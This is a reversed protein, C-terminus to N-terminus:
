DPKKGELFTNITSIQTINNEDTGVAYSSYFKEVSALTTNHVQLNQRVYAPINEYENNPDAASFNFSLNRLKHLREEARAKQMEAEDLAAMEQVFASSLEHEDMVPVMPSSAEHFVIEFPEEAEKLEQSQQPNHTSRPDPASNAEIDLKEFLEISATHAEPLKVEPEQAPIHSEAAAENAYINTPRKLFSGLTNSAVTAIVAPKIDEKKQENVIEMDHSVVPETMVPLEKITLDLEFVMPGEEEVIVQEEVQYVPEQLVITEEVETTSEIVLTPIYEAQLEIKEAGPEEQQLEEMVVPATVEVLEIKVEELEQVPVLNVMEAKPQPNVDLTFMIKEDKPEQRTEPKQEGSPLKQDFGTAIITISINDGLSEDYGLGLIVDADPGAQTLLYEQITEVEDMTFETEGKQSNINILIWKAGKIDSDNLLPSNLAQQIAVQARDEGQARASGLIAVGGNRMVTCVDAFDVNIQGTTNIVDTICKAATALVNDATSLAASMTLNGFQHRLKDNSIVLLTDVQSKMQQIGSDAHLARKKGEYSFPTTIIGVTLIGMDKCIKSIIPAGGTGTGGGMGATVFAMKTNVELIRRIEDLSEETAQRGIEPNAGAGLGQTLSPGLQIKNPVKSLALAQADTNCVIFDVGEIGLSHMYNVANSGGGGVGIVKIISSQENPLDFQIM